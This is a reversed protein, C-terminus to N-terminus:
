SPSLPRSAPRTRCMRSPIVAGCDWLRATCSRPRGPERAARATRADGVLQEFRYLDLEDQEVRLRYGPRHTLMRESGSPLARRLRSVYGRVLARAEAPPDDSWLEDVFQEASVLQGPRVLLIGCVTRIRPAGLAILRGQERVELPGLVSFEM